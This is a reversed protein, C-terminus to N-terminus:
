RRPNPPRKHPRSEGKPIKIEPVAIIPFVPSEQHEKAPTSMLRDGNQPDVGITANGTQTGMITAGDQNNKAPTNESPIEMAFAPVAALSFLLGCALSLRKLPAKDKSQMASM